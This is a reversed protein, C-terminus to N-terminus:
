KRWYASQIPFYNVCAIMKEQLLHHAIKEAEERSQHTVYIGIFAM